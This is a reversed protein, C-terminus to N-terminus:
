TATAGLDIWYRQLVENRPPYFAESDLIGGNSLIAKASAINGKGCTLLVKALGLSRARSLTHRLIQVGFGRRRMSPRIGYGIHGGEIRLAPTLSHRLNSVGVIEADDQVLWFSSNAVFNDPIGIGKANADLIALLEDFNEYEFSLTFPVPREGLATIEEILSRYSNELEKHPAVLFLKSREGVSM